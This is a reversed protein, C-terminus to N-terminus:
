SRLSAGELPSTAAFWMARFVQDVVYEMDCGYRYERLEKVGEAIMAPTIELASAQEPEQRM